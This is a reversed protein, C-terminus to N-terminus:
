AQSPALPEAPFLLAFLAFLGAALSAGVAFTAVFDGGTWTRVEGVLLNGVLLGLGCLVSHLAQASARVDPRARHNLFVQGAVLYCSVCLGYLALAALVLWLPSGIALGGLTVIAAALGLRMTGRVGLWGMVGPLVFLSAIESAQALTLLRPVWAQGVGLSDLLLPTTQSSFALAACIGFTCFAYVFFARGSLLKIAALPAAPGGARRPPTHPLTLTYFGFTMSLIAALRFMDALEPVHWGFMPSLVVGRAFWFGLLWGPVVWGVTGWMRVRGFERRPDRLHAFCTATSLTTAPAQVLWFMLSVCFVETAGTLGSLLWLLGASLFSCITLCREAALWRDAMQGAILPALLSGIAQTSCCLGIILPAFGLEKMRLSFLPVVAGQASYLLFLLLSLRTPLSPLRIGAPARGPSLQRLSQLDM